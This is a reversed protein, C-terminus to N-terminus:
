SLLLRGEFVTLIVDLLTPFISNVKGVTERTLSGDPDFELDIKNGEDDIVNWDKLHYILYFNRLRFNDIVLIGDEIRTSNRRYTTIKEYDPLSFKAWCGFRGLMDLQSFDIGVGVKSVSLIQGSIKKFLVDVEVKFRDDKKIFFSPFKKEPVDYGQEKAENTAAAIEQDSKAEQKVGIKSLDSTLNEKSSDIKKIVEESVEKPSEDKVEEPTEISVDKQVEKEDSM